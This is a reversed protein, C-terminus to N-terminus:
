NRLRDISQALAVYLKGVDSSLLTVSISSGDRAGMLSRLMAEFDHIYQNVAAHFVDDGNYLRMIEKADQNEILRVARRSFVGRDGKLYADWATDSVESSLIKTLDIATSKLAETLLGVQRALTDRGSAAIAKDADVIRQEISASTDMITILQRMLRDAASTAASVARESAGEIAELQVGIETKLSKDIADSARLRMNESADAVVTEIAARAQKAAEDATSRVQDLAALMQGTSDKAFSAARNNLGQLSTEADALAARFNADHGQQDQNLAAIAQRAQDVLTRIEEIHSLTSQAVLESDNIAPRLTEVMDQATKGHDAIRILAHPITEDLERSVSDLALLLSEAHSILQEAERNSGSAHEGFGTLQLEVDALARSLGDTQRLTAAGFATLREELQAAQETFSSVLAQSAQGHLDLERGIGASAEKALALQRDLEAASSSLQRGFRDHAADIRSELDAISGAMEESIKQHRRAAADTAALSAAAVNDSTQRLMDGSSKARIEMESMALDLAAAAQTTTDGAKGAMEALTALQAELGAGHQHAVSGAERFNDSLRQAVTDIRPLGALLGEMRQFATDGSTALKENAAEVEQASRTLKRSSDHLRSATDLGMQQVLQAQEALQRHADALHQGLARMSQDLADNEARLRAALKAFRSQEASGSRLLTLWMIGLFTLPMSITAILTPLASMPVIGDFGDTANWICFAVWAAATLLLLPAILRRFGNAAIIIDEDPAADDVWTPASDTRAPPDLWGPTPQEADAPLPADAHMDPAAAGATEDLAEPGLPRWLGVIKKDGTM